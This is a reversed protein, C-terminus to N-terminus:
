VTCADIVVNTVCSRARPDVLRELRAAALRAHGVDFPIGIPAGEWLGSGFDAHLGTDLGLRLAPAGGACALAVLAVAPVIVRARM